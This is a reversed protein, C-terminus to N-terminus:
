LWFSVLQEENYLVYTTLGIRPLSGGNKHVSILTNKCQQEPTAQHDRNSHTLTNIQTQHNHYVYSLVNSLFLPPLPVCALPMVNFLLERERKCTVRHDTTDCAMVREHM